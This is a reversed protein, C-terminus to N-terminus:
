QQRTLELVYNIYVAADARSVEMDAMFCPNDALWGHYVATQLAGIAWESCRIYKLNCEQPQVFRSLIVILQQWTLPSDPAFQGAGVGSFIGARSVAQIYPAYWAASDVDLYDVAEKEALDGITSDDLLRYIVTAAQARTIPDNKHLTGNYGQM